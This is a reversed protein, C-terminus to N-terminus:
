KKGEESSFGSANKIINQINPDAQPMMSPNQANPLQGQEAGPQALNEAQPTVLSKPAPLLPTNWPLHIVAPPKQMPLSRYDGPPTESSGPVAPMSLFATAANQFTTPANLMLRAPNNSAESTAGAASEMSNMFRNSMGRAAAGIGHGALGLLGLSAHGLSGIVGLGARFGTGIAQAALGQQQGEILATNHGVLNSILLGGKRAALAGGIACLLKAFGVLFSGNNLLLNNVINMFLFYIYFCILMGAISLFKAVTLDKWIGLRNGEDLPSVAIVAPSIIYLFVLDIIREILNLVSIGLVFLMIIGGIYAVFFNYDHMSFGEPLLGQLYYYSSDWPYKNVSDPMCINFLQQAFSDDSTATGSMAGVLGSLLITSARVAIGFIAPMLAVMLAGKLSAKFIKVKGEKNDKGVWESRILGVIVSVGFVLVSLILFGTFWIAVTNTSFITKLINGSGSGTLESNIDADSAGAFFLFLKFLADICQNIAHSINYLFEWWWEFM